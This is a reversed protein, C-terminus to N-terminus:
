YKIKNSIFYYKILFRINFSAEKPKVLCYLPSKKTQVAIICSDECSLIFYTCWRWEYVSASVSACLTLFNAWPQEALSHHFSSEFGLLKPELILLWRGYNWSGWVLQLNHNATVDKIFTLFIFYQYNIIFYLKAPLFKGSRSDESFFCKWINHFSHFHKVLM